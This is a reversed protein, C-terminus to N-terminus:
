ESELLQLAIPLKERTKQDFSYFAFSHSAWDKGALFEDQMHPTVFSIKRMQNVIEFEVREPSFPKHPLLKFQVFTKSESHFGFYDKTKQNFGLLINCGTISSREVILLNKDPQLRSLTGNQRHAIVTDDAKVLRSIPGRIEDLHVEDMNADGKGFCYLYSNGETCFV